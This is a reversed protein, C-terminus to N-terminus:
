TLLSYITRVIVGTAKKKADFLIKTVQQQTLLHYNSRRAAVDHYATKAYSRTQSKPDIANSVWLAGIADGNTGDLPNPIGFKRM